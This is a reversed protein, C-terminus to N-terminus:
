ETINIGTVNQIAQVIRFDYLENAKFKSKARAIVITQMANTMKPLVDNIKDPHSLLGDVEEETFIYEYDRTLNFEDVVDEDLIIIWAKKLHKKQSSFLIRLESLPISITDGYEELEFSYGNRSVYGYIGTTNNMIEIRDTDQLKRPQPTEVKSTAEVVTETTEVEETNTKRTRATRPKTETM